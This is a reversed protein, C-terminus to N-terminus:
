YLSNAVQASSGYNNNGSYQGCQCGAPGCCIGPICCARCVNRGYSRNNDGYKTPYAPAAKYSDATAYNDGYKGGNGGRGRYSKKQEPYGGYHSTQKEYKNDYPDAGYHGRGGNGGRGGGYSNYKRAPKEYSDYAKPTYQNDYKNAAAGGQYREYIKGYRNTEEGYASDKKNYDDDYNDEKEYENYSSSRKPAYRDYKSAGYKPKYTEEHKGYKDATAYKDEYKNDGYKGAHQKYGPQRCEYDDDSSSDSYDSSSGSDYGNGGTRCSKKYASKKYGATAGYKNETPYKEEYKNTKYDDKKEYKDYTSTAAYKDDYGHGGYPKSAGYKGGNGNGNACKGKYTEDYHDADAYKDEKGYKAPAYPKKYHDAQYGGNGGAAAKGYSDKCDDGGKYPKAEYKNDKPYAPDYKTDAKYSDGAYDNKYDDKHETTPYKDHPNQKHGGGGMGGNRCYCTSGPLEETAADETAVAPSRIATSENDDAGELGDVADDDMTQAMNYQPLDMQNLTYANATLALGGISFLLARVAASGTITRNNTM